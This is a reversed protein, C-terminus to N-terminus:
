CNATYDEIQHFELKKMDLYFMIAFHIPTGLCYESKSYGIRNGNDDEEVIGLGACIVCLGDIEM